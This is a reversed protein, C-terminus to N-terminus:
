VMLAVERVLKEVRKLALEIHKGRCWGEYFCMHMTNGAKWADSVWEGLEGILRKSYEWLEGHSTM